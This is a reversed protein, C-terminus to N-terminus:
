RGGGSVGPRSCSDSVFKDGVARNGLQAANLYWSSNLAAGNLAVRLVYNWVEVKVNIFFYTSSGMMADLITPQKEKPSLDRTFM